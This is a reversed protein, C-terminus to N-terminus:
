ARSVLFHARLVRMSGTLVPTCLPIKLAHNFPLHSAHGSVVLTANIRAKDVGVLVLFFLINAIMSVLEFWDRGVYVGFTLLRVQMLVHM